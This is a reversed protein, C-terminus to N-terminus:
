VLVVRANNVNMLGERILVVVVYNHLLVLRKGQSPDALSASELILHSCAAPNALSVSSNDHLLDERADVVEVEPVNNM